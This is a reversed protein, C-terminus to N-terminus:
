GRGKCLLGRHEWYGCSIDRNFLVYFLTPGLAPDRDDIMSCVGRGGAAVPDVPQLSAM